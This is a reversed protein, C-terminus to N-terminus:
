WNTLDQIADPVREGAGSAGSAKRCMEATRFNLEVYKRYARRFLIVSIFPQASQEGIPFRGRGVRNIPVILIAEIPQYTHYLQIFRLNQVTTCVIAGLM